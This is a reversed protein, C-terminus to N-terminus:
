EDLSYTGRGTLVFRPDRILENHVTAHARSKDSMSNVLDAIERFHMPSDSESLVLYAKDRVTKPNVKLWHNLGLHGYPGVDFNKSVSLYNLIVNESLNHEGVIEVLYADFDEDKRSFLKKILSTAVRYANEDIHWITHTSPTADIVYPRGLVKALFNLKNEFVPDYDKFGCIIGVDRALVDSRRLKAVNKLYDETLKIFKKAEEDERIRGGIGKLSASEIQRVRERTLGYEDGLSALTIRSPNKLGYRRVVIDRARKDNIQLSKKVLEDIDIEIAFM